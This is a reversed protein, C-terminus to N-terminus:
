PTPEAAPAESADEGTAAAADEGTTAAKRSKKKKLRDREASLSDTTIRDLRPDPMDLFPSDIKRHAFVVAAYNAAARRVESTARQSKGRKVPKEALVAAHEELAAVFEQLAADIRQSM